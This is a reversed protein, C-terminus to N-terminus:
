TESEDLAARAEKAAVIFRETVGSGYQLMFAEIMLELYSERERLRILEGGDWFAKCAATREDDSLNLLERLCRIEDAIACDLHEEGCGEWHTRYRHAARERLRELVDQKAM